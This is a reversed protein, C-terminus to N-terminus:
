AGCDHDTITQVLGGGLIELYVGPRDDSGCVEFEAEGDDGVLEGTARFTFQVGGGDLRELTIGTPPAAVERVLNGDQEIVFGGGWNGGNAVVDIREGARVAESRAFSFAGLVTNTYSSIRNSEILRGFGPVAITAVIAVLLVVIMLELLTFGRARHPSVM